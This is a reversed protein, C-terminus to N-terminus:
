EVKFTNQFFDRELNVRNKAGKGIETHDFGGSYNSKESAHFGFFAHVSRSFSLAGICNLNKSIYFNLLLLGSNCNLSNFYSFHM